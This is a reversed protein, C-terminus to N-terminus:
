ARLIAAKRADNSAAKVDRLFDAIKDLMARADDSQECFEQHRRKAAEAKSEHEVADAKHDRQDARYGEAWMGGTAGTATSCGTLVAAYRESSAETGGFLQVTSELSLAGSVLKTGGTIYSEKRIADAEDRMAKVRKKGEAMINKEELQASERAQKRDQRSAHTLLAAIKEFADGCIMLDLLPDSLMPADTDLENPSAVSVPEAVTSQSRSVSSTPEPFM